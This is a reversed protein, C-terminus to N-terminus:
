VSVRHLKLNNAIFFWAFVAIAGGVAIKKKTSENTESKYKGILIYVLALHGWNLVM